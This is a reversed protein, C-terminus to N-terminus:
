KINIRFRFENGSLVFYSKLRKKFDDTPMEERIFEPLCNWLKPGARSFSRKGYNTNYPKELIKLTRENSIKVMQKIAAPAGHWVCKHVILCLKFNIRDEIRLWHLEHYFPTLHVRDFKQVGSVMRLASNQVSQLKKVEEQRLGFYLGNCYDLKSLILCTLLTKIMDQPLFQKIKGIQRIIMYSSSVVKTVQQKFNLNGDLWIGPNQTCNIFRIVSGNIFTGHLKLDSQLNKPVFVIIKTKKTNLFLFFEEIWASVISMYSDIKYILIQYQLNLSFHKYLQQDDAFGEANIMIM